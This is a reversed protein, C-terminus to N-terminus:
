RRGAADVVRRRTGHARGLDRRRGGPAVAWSDPPPPPPAHGDLEGAIVTVETVRGGADDHAVVPHRRALADHLLPRGDEVGGPLNLWIQFLELPNPGGADLLPFMESHVIGKGATLWQVDGRGFRAAAGCHTPTTSSGAGCTRSRRSGATRTSRSVPCRSATTCKWGDVGAFDAGIERGTLPADPGFRDNGAPYADDHHVCFLFPDITPWQTGTLAVTEVVVDGTAGDIETM